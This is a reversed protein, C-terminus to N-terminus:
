GRECAVIATINDLGGNRNALSILKDVKSRPSRPLSLLKEITDDDVMNTLGDTCLLINYGCLDSLSIKYLDPTSDTIMGVSRTIVNKYKYESAKDPSLIGNDILDQVYTHDKTLRTLTGSSLIYARSDGVNLVYAVSKMLLLAVITTSMSSLEPESGARQCLAEHAEELSQLLITRATSESIRLEKKGAKQEAIKRRVADSFVQVTLSSAVAGGATGGVGDCVVFLTCDGDLPCTAFCDQNDARSRGIDSKGFYNM